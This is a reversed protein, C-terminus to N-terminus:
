IAQGEMTGGFPRFFCRRPRLGRQDEFRGSRAVSGSGRRDAQGHQHVTAHDLLEQTAHDEALCGCDPPPMSPQSPGACTTFGTPTAHKPTSTSRRVPWRIGAPAQISDFEVDLTRRDHPWPFVFPAFSTLRQLHEVVVHHLKVRDDKDDGRTIAYGGELDIDDRDLGLIESIRWGTMYGFVLLSRWWDAAEIGPLDAPRRAQDCAQYIAAFHDGSVFTPLKKTEKVMRFRPMEPLYKWECAIRLVARVHRLEKNISAPSVTSGKKKGAELRRRAKYDDVTQTKIGNVKKSNIIREFHNLAELAVHLSGHGMGAGIKTEWEKHFDLWLM